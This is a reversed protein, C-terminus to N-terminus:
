EGSNAVLRKLAIRLMKALWQARKKGDKKFSELTFGQQDIWFEVAWTEESVPKVKVKWQSKM